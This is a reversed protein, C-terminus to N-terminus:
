GMGQTGVQPQDRRQAHEAADGEDEDVHRNGGIPPQGVLQDGHIVPLGLPVRGVNLVKADAMTVSVLMTEQMVSTAVWSAIPWNEGRM